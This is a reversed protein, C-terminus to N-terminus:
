QQNQPMFPKVVSFQGQDPNEYYLGGNRTDLYFMNKQQGKPISKVVDAYIDISNKSKKDRKFNITITLKGDRNYESVKQAIEQFEQEVCDKFARVRDNSDVVRLSSLLDQFKLKEDQSMKREKGKQEEQKYNSQNSSKM